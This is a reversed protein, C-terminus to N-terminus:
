SGWFKWWKKGEPQGVGQQVEKSYYDALYYGNISVFDEEGKLVKDWNALTERAVLDRASRAKTGESEALIRQCIENHWQVWEEIVKPKHARLTVLQDRLQARLEVSRQENQAMQKLTQQEQEANPRGRDLYDSLNGNEQEVKELEQRLKELEITEQLM